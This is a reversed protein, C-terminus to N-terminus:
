WVRGITLVQLTETVEVALPHLLVQLCADEEKSEMYKLWLSQVILQWYQVGCVNNVIAVVLM